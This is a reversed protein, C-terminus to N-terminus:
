IAMFRVMRLRSNCQFKPATVNKEHEVTNSTSQLNVCDLVCRRYTKGLMLVTCQFINNGIIQPRKYWDFSLGISRCLMRSYVAFTSWTAAISSSFLISYHKAACMSWLQWCHVMNNCGIWAWCYQGTNNVLTFLTPLLVNNLGTLCCAWNVSDSQGFDPEGTGPHLIEINLHLLSFVVAKFVDFNKKCLGGSFSPISM